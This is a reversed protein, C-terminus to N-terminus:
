GFLVKARYNDHWGAKLRKKIGKKLTKEQKLLNLAFHRLTCLNEAAEG